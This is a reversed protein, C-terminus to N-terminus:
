RQDWSRGEPILTGGEGRNQLPIGDSKPLDQLGPEEGLGKAQIPIAGELSRTQTKNSGLKAM